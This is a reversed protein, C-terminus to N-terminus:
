RDGGRGQRISVVEDAVKKDSADPTKVEVKPALPGAVWHERVEGRPEVAAIDNIFPIGSLQWGVVGIFGFCAIPVCYKWCTTM